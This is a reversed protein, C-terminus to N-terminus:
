FTILYLTDQDVDVGLADYESQSLTVVATKKAIEEKNAAIEEAFYENADKQTTLLKRQGGTDVPDTLGVDDTTTQAGPDNDGGSWQYKQDQAPESTFWSPPLAVLGAGFDPAGDLDEGGAILFRGNTGSLVPNASFV